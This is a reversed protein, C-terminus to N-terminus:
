KKRKKEFIVIPDKEIEEEAKEEIDEIAEKENRLITKSDQEIDQSNKYMRDYHKHRKEWINKHTTVEKKLMENLQRTRDITDEVCNKFKDGKIYELLKKACESMEVESLKMAYLQIIWKRLVEAIYITGYPHVILIGDKVWFGVKGKESASTVLVGYSANKKAIDNKIQHVYENKFTQTKKCEYIIFGIEKKNYTVYHFIDGGHGHREIRDESFKSKLEKVLEEELNLGEIQPTTGKKLQEKLEKIIKDSELIRKNAGQLKEMKGELMKSLKNTRKKEHIKGQELAEKKAKTLEKKNKIELELKEKNLKDIKKKSLKSAKEQAKKQFEIKQKEFQKKLEVKEQLLKEKTQKAITLQKKLDQEFKKKEDWVGIIEYYRSESLISECLPCEFKKTEEMDKELLELM